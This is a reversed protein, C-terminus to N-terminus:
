SFSVAIVKYCCSLNIPWVRQKCLLTGRAIFRSPTESYYKQLAGKPRAFLQLQITIKQPWVSVGEGKPVDEKSFQHDGKDPSSLSQGKKIHQYSALICAPGQAQVTRFPVPTPPLPKPELDFFGLSIARGCFLWLNLNVLLLFSGATCAKRGVLLLM